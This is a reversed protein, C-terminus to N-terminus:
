KNIRSVMKTLNPIDRPTMIGLLKQNQKRDRTILTAFIIEM